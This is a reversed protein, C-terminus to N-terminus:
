LDKYVVLFEKAIDEYTHVYSFDRVRRAYEQRQTSDALLSIKEALDDVSRPDVYLVSDGIRDRIGTEQTVICPRDRQLAEMVLNPSVESLSPLVFAWCSALKKFAEAQPVNKLLELEIDPHTEKAKQFAQELVHVNKLFIDRGIWLFNKKTPEENEKKPGYFNEITTTKESRVGYAKVVSDRQWSTSFVIRTALTFIIHKTIWFVIREKPTLDRPVDYFERLVVPEHTRAVFAEWLFDGGSRIIVPKHVLKGICVAPLAVSWTDLAITVDALDVDRFLRWAYILHRVVPPFRRVDRFSHVVVDHGLATFAEQLHQSYYSPGGADPPSLPTAILIKMYTHWDIM